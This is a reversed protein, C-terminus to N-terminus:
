EERSNMRLRMNEYLSNIQQNELKERLDGCDHPVEPKDFYDMSLLRLAEILMYRKARIAEVCGNMMDAEFECDIMEQKADKYEDNNRYYAEVTIATPKVGRGMIDPNEHADKVLESRITKVKEQALKANRNAQSALAAYRGVISPYGLVATDLNQPDIELDYDLNMSEEKKTVKKTGRAM